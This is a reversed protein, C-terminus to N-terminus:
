QAQSTTNAAPSGSQIIRWCEKAIQWDERSNIVLTRVAANPTSVDQDLKPNENAQSSLKVGLFKFPECARARVLASHEGIGGTFVLADLGGLSALMAGIHRALSHIFADLALAARPNGQDVEALVERLDSSVGSVGLLGSDKNLIRDLDQQTLAQERMLYLLLGPDVSGSRSGMVLGELPTFGMTTDVSRGDKIAALSCGNGLHCTILRLERLDRGLLHAAREACYQHSIGHFGYRRLGQEFWDYPGGYVAAEDPITSHFATDFVAVQSAHPLLREAAEIGALNAPNHAPALASLRSIAAKVEPTVRVSERYERGGHVVRHGLVAIEDPSELVRNPGSWITSILKEVDGSGEAHTENEAEWIPEPPDAPLSDGIQFLSTKESSSGANLTLIKM